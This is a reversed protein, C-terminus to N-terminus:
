KIIYQKIVKIKNRLMQLSFIYSPISFKELNNKYFYLKYKIQKFNDNSNIM